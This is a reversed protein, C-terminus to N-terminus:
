STCRWGAAIERITAVSWGGATAIVKHSALNDKGCNILVPKSLM